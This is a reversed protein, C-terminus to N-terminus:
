YFESQRNSLYRTLVVKLFFFPVVILDELTYLSDTLIKGVGASVSPMTLEQLSDADSKLIIHFIRVM